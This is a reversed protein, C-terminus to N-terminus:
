NGLSGLHELSANSFALRLYSDKAKERDNFFHKGLPFILGEEAAASAVDSAPAGICEVWLFFGGEPKRFRVYPACHEM